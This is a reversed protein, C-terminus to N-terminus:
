LYKSTVNPVGKSFDPLLIIVFLISVMSDLVLCKDIPHGSAGPYMAYFELYSTFGAIDIKDLLLYPYFVRKGFEGLLNVFKYLSILGM